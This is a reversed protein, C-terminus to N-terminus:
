AQLSANYNFIKNLGVLVLNQDVFIQLKLKKALFIADGGTIVVNLDKFDPSYAEIFGKIELLLGHIAGNLMAAKTNSGISFNIEEVELLPLKGTFHHMARLRMNLGPAINGGLYDGNASLWDYTICTGADIVLINSQPSKEQAGVVAALRDKGLTNPTQYLNNIPLPTHEDLLLFNFQTDLTAILQDISFGTVSSLIVNKCSQNTLFDILQNQTWDPLIIREILQSDEFVGIKASSNGLDITLNM